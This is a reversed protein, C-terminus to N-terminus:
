CSSMTSILPINFAPVKFCRCSINGELKFLLWEKWVLMSRWEESQFHFASLLVSHIQMLSSWRFCKVMKAVSFEPSYFLNRVFGVRIIHFLLVHIYYMNEPISISVKGRVWCLKKLISPPVAGPVCLCFIILKGSFSDLLWTQKHCCMVWRQEARGNKGACM